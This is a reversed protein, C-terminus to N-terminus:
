QKNAVEVSGPDRSAERGGAEGVVSEEEEEEFSWLHRKRKEERKRRKETENATGSAGEEVPEGGRDEEGQDQVRRRRRETAENEGEAEARDPCRGSSTGVLAEAVHHGARQGQQVYKQASSMSGWRGHDQLSFAGVGAAVEATAGGRRSSHETYGASQLVASELIRRLDKVATDYTIKTTTKTTRGAGMRPQM